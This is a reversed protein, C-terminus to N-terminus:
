GSACEKVWEEDNIRYDKTIRKFEEFNCDTSCRPLKLNRIKKSDKFYIRLFVNGHKRRLEFVLTSSYDPWTWDFVGLVNMLTSMTSDHGSLMLFKQTSQPNKLYDEFFTTIYDLVLGSKLRGLETTNSSLAFGMVLMESTEQPFVGKTWEPLTLNLFDQIFLLDHVPNVDEPVRLDEGTHNSLYEFLRKKSRLFKQVNESRVLEGMLRDHKRCRRDSQQIMGDRDSPITHIPVPQWPLQDNWVQVGEPPFLGALNCAASMLCRDRDSSLVRVFNKHYKRPIFDAYKERYWRGLDYAQRKGINTLQGLGEPWLKPIKERHIDNKYIIRPSRNGHRYLVALSLLESNEGSGCDSYILLLLTLWTLSM